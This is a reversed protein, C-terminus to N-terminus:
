FHKREELTTDKVESQQLDGERLFFLIYDELSGVVSIYILMYTCLAEVKGSVM